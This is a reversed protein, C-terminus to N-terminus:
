STEGTEGVVILISCSNKDVRGEDKFFFGGVRNKIEVTDNQPAFAELLAGM